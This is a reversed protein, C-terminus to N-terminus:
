PWAPLLQMRVELLVAFIGVAGGTLCVSCTVARVWSQQHFFRVWVILLAIVALVVGLRSLLLGFVAMVALAVLPMLTFPTEEAPAPERLMVVIVPVLLAVAAMPLLGPGPMEDMWFGLKFAGTGFVLVLAALLLAAVHTPAVRSM